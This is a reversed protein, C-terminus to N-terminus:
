PYPQPFFFTVKTGTPIKKSDFLDEIRFIFQSKRGVNLLAVREGIISTAHSKRKIGSLIRLRQVAERGIGNDVITCFIGNSILKFEVEIRGDIPVTALGHWVANELFPQLLLPPIFANEQNIKEDVHIQFEFNGDLRMREINLYLRILNIEESISTRNSRSSDLIARMLNSFDALYENASVTDRALFYNQISNLSNFIFHPNMQSILSKHESEAIRRRTDTRRNTVLIIARFVAGISTFLVLCVFLIFIPHLWYPPLVNFDFVAYETGWEGFTPKVQLEFRYDGPSFRPFSVSKADTYIWEMNSGVVRYRYKLGNPSQFSIGTYEITMSADDSKLNIIGSASWDQSKTYIRLIVPRPASRFYEVTSNALTLIENPRLLFISDGLVAIDLIDDAFDFSFVRWEIGAKETENNIICSVGKSTVAWIWGKKDKAIRRVENSSLGKKETFISIVGEHIRFLGNADTSVWMGGGNDANLDTISGVSLYEEMGEVKTLMNGSYYFLGNRVAIWLRGSSDQEFGHCRGSIEANRGFLGVREFNTTARKEFDVMFVGRPTCICFTDQFSIVDTAKRAMLMRSKQSEYSYFAKQAMVILIDDELQRFRLVPSDNRSYPEIIQKNHSGNAFYRFASGNSLGVFFENSSIPLFASAQVKFDLTSRRVYEFPLKPFFFVGNTTCFWIGGEHDELVFQVQEMGLYTETPFCGLSDRHVRSAGFRSGLWLHNDKSESIFVIQNNDGNPLPNPYQQFNLDPQMVGINNGWALYVVGDNTKTSKPPFLHILATDLDFAPYLKWRGQKHVEFFDVGTLATISEDKNPLISLIWRHPHIIDSNLSIARTCNESDLVLINGSGSGFYVNGKHDEVFVTCLNEMELESLWPTNLRNHIKGLYYFCPRGSINLFWIRGKTDQRIEIVANDSLGNGTTLTTFSHGDFRSVGHETGFWM